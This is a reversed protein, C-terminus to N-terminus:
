RILYRDLWLTAHAVTISVYHDQDYLEIHNHTQIWVLEKPGLAEDYAQQAYEPLLFLDKTGHIIQLTGPRYAPRSRDCQVQLLRRAIRCDDEGVM